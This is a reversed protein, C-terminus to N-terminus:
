LAGGPAKNGDEVQYFVGWAGIGTHAAIVPTIPSILIETPHYRQELIGRLELAFGPIDAHAIGLRLRGGGETPRGALAGDLLTLVRERAARTGRARDVPAVQGDRTLHLIPKVDLKNGLWGALRGVRGSRILRELNLVTFFAGSHDRVRDLERAIAAPNWGDRALELARLVLMGQGLSAARSDVLTIRKREPDVVRAAREANAFTGSLARSLVVAVVHDSTRLADTFGEEFAQPTPQSTSADGGARLREFFEPATMEFRDRYVRDKIILQTPVLTIAHEVVIADPLDCATDTLLGITRHRRLAQRQMRMDEAKTAEVTGWGGALAFVREPADTHIHAKLLGGAELVVISGGHERLSQRVTAVPPLAAGRVLFETCFRFDRTSELDALAAADPAVRDVAGEALHGEEILRKVGDLFRVFGKAGADVVGAQRLSQLLEPTRALAAETSDVLRRMFIRIDREAAAREAEDAAERAVTLITGEVPEDLAGQLRNFGTRIAAALDRASATLRSGLGEQLGLLFQSLMLGSNGRAGRISAQAMAETVSPLPAEAAVDRLAQAVARLTLCMNTGTDGDPVPFVNIRNLEDRGAAVWDAAALLSRRLRPGDVYAIGVGM